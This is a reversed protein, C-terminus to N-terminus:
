LTKRRVTSTARAAAVSRWILNSWFSAGVFSPLYRLCPTNLSIFELMAMPDYTHVAMM